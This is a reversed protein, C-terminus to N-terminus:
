AGSRAVKCIGGRAGVALFRDTVGLAEEALTEGLLSISTGINSTSSGEAKRAEIVSEGRSTEAQAALASSNGWDQISTISAGLGVREDVGGIGSAAADERSGATVVALASTRGHIAVAGDSLAASLALPAIGGGADVPSGGASVAVVSLLALWSCDASTVYALLGANAYEGDGGSAGAIGASNGDELVIGSGGIEEACSSGSADGIEGRELGGALRGIIFLLALRAGIRLGASSGEGAEGVRAGVLGL